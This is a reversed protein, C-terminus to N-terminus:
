TDAAERESKFHCAEWRRDREAFGVVIAPPHQRLVPGVHRTMVVHPRQRGGMNSWRVKNGSAERALREGNGPLASARFIVAMEPRLHKPEHVLEPGSPHKSFINSPEDRHAEVLHKRVQFGAAVGCPRKSYRSRGDIGRVSSLPQPNHCVGTLSSATSLVAPFNLLRPSGFNDASTFSHGVGRLQLAMPAFMVESAISFASFLNGFRSVSTAFTIFGPSASPERFGVHTSHSM